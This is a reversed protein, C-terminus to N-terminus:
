NVKVFKGSVIRYTNYTKSVDSNTFKNLGTVGSYSITQMANNISDRDLKASAKMGEFLTMIADYALASWAGPKEGYKKEYATVFQQVVAATDDASFAGVTYMGEVASGGETIMAPSYCGEDALVPIKAFDLGHQKSQSAFLSMETVLGAFFIGDAKSSQIKTIITNFDKTEGYIFTEVLEVEMGQAKAEDAFHKYIGFGYDDQEYLVAIKKFGLNKAITACMGAVYGDNNCTRYYYPSLGTIDTSTTVPSIATLKAEKYIPIQALGCSSNYSTVVGLISEDVVFKNAIAAAATPNAEDDESVLEVKKGKIGGSTNVQEVALNLANM